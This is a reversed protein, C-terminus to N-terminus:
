ASPPHSVDQEDHLQQPSAIPLRRLDVLHQVMKINGKGDSELRQRAPRSLAVYWRRDAPRRYGFLHFSPM